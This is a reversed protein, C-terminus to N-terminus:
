RATIAKGNRLAYERVLVLVLSAFFALVTLIAMARAKRPRVPDNTVQIPSIQELAELKEIKMEETAVQNELQSRQHPIDRNLQIELRTIEDLIREQRQALDVEQKLDLDILAIDIHKIRTGLTDIKVQGDFLSRELRGISDLLEVARGAQERRASSLLINTVPNDEGGAGAGDSAAVEENEMTLRLLQQAQSLRAQAAILDDQAAKIARERWSKGELFRDRQFGLRLVEAELVKLEGRKTKIDVQTREEVGILLAADNGYGKIRLRAKGLALDIDSDQGEEMAQQNFSAVAHELILQCQERSRSLNSLTIINGGPTWQLGIPIFEANIIPAGQYDKFEELGKMSGWFRQSDYWQVVDKLAWGRIPENLTNFTVIGPRIQVSGLYLPKTVVGYVLGAIVGLLTVAVIIWRGRYFINLFEPLSIALLEGGGVAEPKDNTTSETGLDWEKDRNRIV